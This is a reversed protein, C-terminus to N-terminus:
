HPMIVVPTLSAHDGCPTLSTHDHIQFASWMCVFMESSECGVSNVIRSHHLKVVSLVCFHIQMGIKAFPADLKWVSPTCTVCM